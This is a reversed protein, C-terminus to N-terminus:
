AAWIQYFIIETIPKEIRTYLFGRIDINIDFIANLKASGGICPNINKSLHLFVSNFVKDTIENRINKM